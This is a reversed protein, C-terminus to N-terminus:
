EIERLRALAEDRGLIEMAEFMGPSATAGAIAARVPGMVAGLKKGSKEAYQKAAEELADHTWSPLAELYPLLEKLTDKDKALVELAKEDKPIPRSRVYFLGAAALDVLTEARPKLGPLAKLLLTKQPESLSAGLAKEMFPLLLPLLETDTMARLYHANVHALKKFDMRSPAKGVHKLNFVEIARETPIIEEDGHSFGLRLLYNRLGEPLYGLDRYAEVGLAGHRKSLKAGDPGHILPIHVFKPIEWGMAQYIITQRGANNLHDDGRIIHTIAMDHDDVVVAHMYTPTGDARLIVFDDLADAPFRVEGQVLDDVLIEGTLPAKIRVVPKVGAPADSAPKDRWKRDYHYMEGKAEAAARAEALEEPTTYCYYAAGKAVLEEAVERHRPARALQYTVEGDWNLGLWSLGELIARKADETSRAVDTDEVRLLFKGSHHKAFLWNFLATRAGGIHLYGTPSPAFRTIVSM